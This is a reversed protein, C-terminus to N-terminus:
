IRRRRSIEMVGSHSAPGHTSDLKLLASEVM